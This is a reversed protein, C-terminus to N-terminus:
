KMDNMFLHSVQLWILYFSWITFCIINLLVFHTREDSAKCILSTCKAPKICLILIDVGM